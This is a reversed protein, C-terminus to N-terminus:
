PPIRHGLTAPAGTSSAAGARKAAQLMPRAGSEPMQVSGIPPELRRRVGLWTRGRCRLVTLVATDRVRRVAM